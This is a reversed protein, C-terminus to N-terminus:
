YSSSINVNFIDERMPNTSYLCTNSISKTMIPQPLSSFDSVHIGNKSFPRYFGRTRHLRPRQEDNSKDFDSIAKIYAFDNKGSKIYEQAWKKIDNIEKQSYKRKISIDKDRLLRKKKLYFNQQSILDNSKEEVSLIIQKQLFLMEWWEMLLAKTLGDGDGFEHIKRPIGNQRKLSPRNKILNKLTLSRKNLEKKLQAIRTSDSDM